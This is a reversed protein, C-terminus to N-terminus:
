LKALPSVFAKWKANASMPLLLVVCREIANPQVLAYRAYSNETKNLKKKGSGKALSCARTSSKKKGKEKKEKDADM